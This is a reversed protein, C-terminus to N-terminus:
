DAAARAAVSPQLPTQFRLSCSGALLRSPPFAAESEDCRPPAASICGWSCFSEHRDQATGPSALRQFGKGLTSRLRMRSVREEIMELAADPARVSDLSRSTAHGPM